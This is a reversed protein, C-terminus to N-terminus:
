GLRHEEICDIKSGDPKKCVVSLVFCVSVITTIRAVIGKLGALIRTIM